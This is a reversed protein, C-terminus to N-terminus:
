SITKNHIKKRDILYFLAIWLIFVLLYLFLNIFNFHHGRFSDFFFNQYIYLKNFFLYHLTISFIFTLLIAGIKFFKNYLQYFLIVILSIIASFIIIKISYNGLFFDKNLWFSNNGVARAPLNKIQINLFNSSNYLMIIYLIIYKLFTIIFIKLFKISKM